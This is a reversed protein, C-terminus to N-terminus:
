RVFVIQILASVVFSSICEGSLDVHYVGSRAEVQVKYNQFWFDVLVQAEVSRRM